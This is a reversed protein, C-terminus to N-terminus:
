SGESHDTCRPSDTGTKSQTEWASNQATHQCGCGTRFYTSSSLLFHASASSVCPSLTLSPPLSYIFPLVHLTCRTLDLGFNGRGGGRECKQTLPCVMWLFTQQKNNSIIWLFIYIYINELLLSLMSIWLPPALMFATSVIIVFIYTKIITYLYM